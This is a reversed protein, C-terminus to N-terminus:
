PVIEVVTEDSYLISPPLSSQDTLTLSTPVINILTTEPTTFLTELVFDVNTLVADSDPAVIPTGAISHTIAVAKYFGTSDVVDTEFFIVNPDQSADLRAGTFLIYTPDYYLRFSVGYLADVNFIKIDITQTSQDSGLVRTYRPTSKMLPVVPSLDILVNNVVGAVLTTGTSGKFILGQRFDRAEAVFLLRIEAPLSDIQGELLLTNANYTLLRTAITDNEAPNIVFVIFQDVAALLKPSADSMDFSIQLAPENSSEDYIRSSCGILLAILIILTAICYFRKM